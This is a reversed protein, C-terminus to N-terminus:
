EKTESTGDDTGELLKRLEATLAADQSRRKRSRRARAEANVKEPNKAKWARKAANAKEPNKAAWAQSSAKAKEPDKAYRAQSSAKVKEPNKAAWARKAANAKEPNKAAWARDAANKCQQLKSCYGSKNNAGLPGGCNECRLKTKASVVAVAMCWPLANIEVRNGQRREHGYGILERFSDLLHRSVGLLDRMQALSYWLRYVPAEGM